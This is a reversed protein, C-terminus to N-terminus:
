PVEGLSCVDTRTESRHTGAGESTTLQPSPLFLLPKQLVKAWKHCFNSPLCMSCHIGSQLVQKVRPQQWSGREPWSTKPSGLIDTGWVTKELICVQSTSQPPASPACGSLADAPSTSLVHLIAWFVLDKPTKMSISLPVHLHLESKQKNAKLKSLSSAHCYIHKHFAWGTSETLRDFLRYPFRWNQIWLLAQSSAVCQVVFLFCFISYSSTWCVWNRKATCPGQM